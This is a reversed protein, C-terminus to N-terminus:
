TESKQKTVNLNLNLDFKVQKVQRERHYSIMDYSIYINKKSNGM